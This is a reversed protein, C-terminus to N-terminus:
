EKRCIPPWYPLIRGGSLLLGASSLDVKELQSKIATEIEDASDCLILKTWLIAQLRM